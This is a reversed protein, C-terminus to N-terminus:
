IETYIDTQGMKSKILKPSEGKTWAELQKRASYKSLSARYAFMKVTVYGKKLCEKLARELHETDQMLEQVNPNDVRKFGDFLWQDIAKTWVKGPNYDVSDLMVDDDEVEDADTIERKLGLKPVFSGIPTEIRYGRAMLEAACKVFQKFVYELEGDATKYHEHCYGDVAEIDLKLGRAPRAYVINRGDKGKMPTPHVEYPFGSKKRPMLTLIKSNNGAFTRM